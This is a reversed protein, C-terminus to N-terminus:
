QVWGQSAAYAGIGLIMLFVPTAVKLIQALIAFAQGLKVSQSLTSWSKELESKLHRLSAHEKPTLPSQDYGRGHFPNDDSM